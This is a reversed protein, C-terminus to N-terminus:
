KWKWVESDCEESEELQKRERENPDEKIWEENWEYKFWEENKLVWKERKVYAIIWDSKIDWEWDRNMWEKKMCNDLERKSSSRTM